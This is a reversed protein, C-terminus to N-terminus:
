FTLSQASNLEKTNNMKKNLSQGISVDVELPVSLQLSSELCNKAMPVFRKLQDTKVEFVLEDHVQLVINADFNNDDIMDQAKVLARKVIEAATSQM